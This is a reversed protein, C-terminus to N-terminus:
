TQPGAAKVEDSVDAAFREFNKAFMAALKAAQADYAAPDAWARRPFLVDAPVGMVTEPVGIGFVPDPITAVSDLEGGLAAEVMRRTLSLKMRSGVGVGGGSWGTNLLWVKADHRALKEGLLKAYVNPALPLFPAGFCTSFTASPETVGRETGAVKATYGSLFHYMAQAPDLKSIPPLVGFADCTLFVIHKPHGAVGGLDVKDLHTLPYSSRTNETIADSDLDLARSEPDCVVNELVTGFRRTTEFIEPEGTASLRIVKAYCGGEVNFVGRDSWGHEDDGILTRKPDSSLTTKGTGSLGFFLAVDDRDSGWNCSCHMPFIGQKPLLYNMVTFISKKIEGAYHTGGILVERRGFDLLIFTSSRTGDREPVAEFGAANIVTFGPLHEALAAAEQERIFMNQAFLNHWAKETVVRVALRYSPDAGAWGDFVYLDREALYERVRQGLADAAAAPFRTNVEGWWIDDTVGPREVVFKDKPSRGTQPSTIAVLPGGVAISTRGEGLSAEYLRAAPLNWFVRQAREIGHLELGHRSRHPGHHHM